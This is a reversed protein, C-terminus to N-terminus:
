WWQRWFRLDRLILAWKGKASHMVATSAATKCGGIVHGDLGRAM